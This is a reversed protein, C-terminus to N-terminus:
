QQIRQGFITLVNLTTATCINKPLYEINNCQLYKNHLYEINNCHLDFCPRSNNGLVVTLDSESILHPPLCLYFIFIYLCSLIFSLYFCVLFSLLYIYVSLIFLINLHHHPFWSLFRSLIFGSVIFILRPSLTTLNLLLTTQWTSCYRPCSELSASIAPLASSPPPTSTADLCWRATIQPKWYLKRRTWNLM